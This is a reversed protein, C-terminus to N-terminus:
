NIQRISQLQRAIICARGELVHQEAAALRDEHMGMTIAKRSGCQRVPEL